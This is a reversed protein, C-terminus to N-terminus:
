IVKGKYDPNVACYTYSRLQEQLEGKILLTRNCLLLMVLCLLANIVVAMSHLGKPFQVAQRYSM